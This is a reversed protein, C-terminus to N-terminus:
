LFDVADMDGQSELELLPVPNQESCPFGLYGVPWKRYAFATGAPRGEGEEAMVGGLQSVGM